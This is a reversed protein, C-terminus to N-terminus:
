SVELWNQGIKAEVPIWLGGLKQWPREMLAKLAAAFATGAALPVECLVSDHTVSLLRGGHERALKAARPLTIKMLDAETAIQPFAMARTADPEGFPLRWGYVTRLERDVKAAEVMRQQYAAVLPLAQRITELIAAAESVTCGLQHALNVAGMGYLCGYFARKAYNRDAPTVDGPQCGRWLGAVWRHVDRTKDTQSDYLRRLLDADGAFHAVLFGHMQSWDAQVLVCGEDPVVMDRMAKPHNQANTGSEGGKEDGDRGSAVRGVETDIRYRAYLRGDVLPKEVYMSLLQDLHEYEILAEIVERAAASTSKLGALKRIAKANTTVAKTKRDRQVRLKLVDYLLWAKQQASTPNFEQAQEVKLRAKALLPTLASRRVLKPRPGSAKGGAAQWEAVEEDHVAKRLALETERQSQLADREGVVGTIREAVAASVVPMGLIRQKLAQKEGDLRVRHEERKALDIRFGTKELVWLERVCPMLIDCIYSWRDGAARRQAQALRWTSSVDLANYFCWIEYQGLHGLQWQELCAAYQDNKPNILAKHYCWEGPLMLSLSDDLGVEFEPQIFRQIAMTDFAKERLGRIGCEELKEIDFSVNHGWIREAADVYPQIQPVGMRTWQRVGQGDVSLGVLSLKGDGDTEVDLALDAGFPMVDILQPRRFPKAHLAARIDAALIPKLHWNGRQVYSPHLTAVYLSMTSSMNLM